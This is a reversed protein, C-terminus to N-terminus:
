KISRFDNGTYNKKEKGERKMSHAFSGTRLSCAAAGKIDELSPPELVGELHLHHCKRM